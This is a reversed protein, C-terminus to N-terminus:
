FLVSVLFNIWFAKVKEQLNYFTFFEYNIIQIERFRKPDNTLDNKLSEFDPYFNENQIVYQLKYFYFPKPPWTLVKLGDFPLIFKDQM